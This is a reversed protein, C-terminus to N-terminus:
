QKTAGCRSCKYGTVVTEDYAEKDIVWRDEYQDYVTGKTYSDRLMPANSHNSDFHSYYSELSILENYCVPCRYWTYGDQVKVSEYHGEQDHHVTSKIEEWDHGLASGSTAGCITCTKPETCTANAYNHTHTDPTNGGIGGNGSSSNSSSSSSRSSESSSNNSSGTSDDSNSNEFGNDSSSSENSSDENDSTSDPNFHADYTTFMSVLDELDVRSDQYAMLTIYIIRDGKVRWFDMYNMVRNIEGNDRATFKHTNLLYKEGLFSCTSFNEDSISFELGNKSYEKYDDKLSQYHKNVYQDLSGNEAVSIAYINISAKGDFTQATMEWTQGSGKFDENSQKITKLTNDDLRMRYSIDCYLNMWKSYFEMESLVGQEYPEGPTIYIDYESNHENDASTAESSTKSSTESSSRESISSEKSGNGKENKCGCLAFSLVALLLLLVNTKKM